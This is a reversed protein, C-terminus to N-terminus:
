YNRVVACPKEGVNNDFYKSLCSPTIRERKRLKKSWHVILRLKKLLGLM